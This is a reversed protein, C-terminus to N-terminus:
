FTKYNLNKKQQKRDQLCRFECFLYMRIVFMSNVIWLEAANLQLCLFTVHVLNCPESPGCSGLTM